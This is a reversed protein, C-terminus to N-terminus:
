VLRELTAVDRVVVSIESNKRRIFLGNKPLIVCKTEVQSSVWRTVGVEVKMPQKCRSCEDDVNMPQM